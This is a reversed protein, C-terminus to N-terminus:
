ENHLHLVLEGAREREKGYIVDVYLIDLTFRLM